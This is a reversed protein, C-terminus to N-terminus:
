GWKKELQLWHLDEAINKGFPDHIFPLSRDPRRYTENDPIALSPLNSIGRIWTERNRETEM